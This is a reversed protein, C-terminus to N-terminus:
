PIQVVLHYCWYRTRRWNTISFDLETRNVLFILLCQVPCQTRNLSKASRQVSCARVHEPCETWTWNPTRVSFMGSIWTCLSFFQTINCSSLVLGCFVAPAWRLMERTVLAEPITYWLYDNTDMAHPPSCSVYVSPPLHGVWTPLRPAYYTNVENRWM